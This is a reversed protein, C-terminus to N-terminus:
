DVLEAPDVEAGEEVDMYTPQGGGDAVGYRRRKVTQISSRLQHSIEVWYLTGYQDQAWAWRPVDPYFHNRIRYIPTRVRYAPDGPELTKPLPPRGVGVIGVNDLLPTWQFGRVVERRVSLGAREATITRRETNVIAVVLYPHVDIETDLASTLTMGVKGLGIDRRVTLVLGIVGLIFAGAAILLTAVDLWTTGEPLVMGSLM